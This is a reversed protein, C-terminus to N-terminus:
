ASVLQPQNCKWFYGCYYKLNKKNTVMMSPTNERGNVRPMGKGQHVSHLSTIGCLKQPQNVFPSSAEDQGVKGKERGRWVCAKPASLHWTLLKTIRLGGYQLSKLSLDGWSISWPGWSKWVGTPWAQVACSAKLIIGAQSCHTDMRGAAACFSGQQTWGVGSSPSFFYIAKLM